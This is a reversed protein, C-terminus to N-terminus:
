RALRSFSGAEGASKQYWPAGIIGGPIVPVEEIVKGGLGAPDNQQQWSCEM